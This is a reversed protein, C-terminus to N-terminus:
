IKFIWGSNASSSTIKGNWSKGCFWWPHGGLLAWFCLQCVQIVLNWTQCSVLIFKLELFWWRLRHCATDVSWAPERERRPTYTTQHAHLKCVCKRARIVKSSISNCSRLLVHIACCAGLEGDFSSFLFCIRPYENMIPKMVLVKIRYALVSYM